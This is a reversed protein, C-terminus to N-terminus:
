TVRPDVADGANKLAVAPQAKAAERAPALSGIIATMLGLALFVLAPGPTLVLQPKAEGFYGGGLDGGLVRLAADALGFGLAIGALGGVLGVCVGEAMVQALLARRRVGLVRLLAFQPRRRAVSLSQASYVLFGGTLLAMLALMDLNVRYARSLSDSRRAESERSVLQADAPLQGALAGAMQEVDVGKDLKLDLRQLRGIRGLRWQASAIDLVALRREEGAGPLVGAIRFTAKRGGATLEIEQGVTRGALAAPSLFVAREDFASAMTPGRAEEGEASLPRGILSPTVVAARLVDLGLVTVTEGIRDTGAELEVVPSVAAVGPLRALKPYLAEDFGFSTTSRVQLE